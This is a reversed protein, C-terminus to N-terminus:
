QTLQKSSWPFSLMKSPIFSSLNMTSRRGRLVMGASAGQSYM